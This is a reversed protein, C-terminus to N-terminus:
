YPNEALLFASVVLRSESTGKVCTSLTLFHQSDGSPVPRSSLVGERQRDAWSSFDQQGAFGIRYEPANARAAIQQVCFIEYIREGTPTLIRIEHHANLFDQDALLHLQGFMSGNNMRHGYLVANHDTFDPNNWTDMFISGARNESGDPSHSLYFTNDQGHMVPYDVPLGDIRIWGIASPALARLGDWDVRATDTLDGQVTQSQSAPEPVSLYARFIQAVKESQSDERWISAIQWACFGLICAMVAILLGFLIRKPRNKVKLAQQELEYRALRSIRSAGDKVEKADRIPRGVLPKRHEFASM